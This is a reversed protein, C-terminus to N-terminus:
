APFRSIPRSRVPRSSPSGTGVMAWEIDVPEGRKAEVAAALDVIGEIQRQSLCAVGAPCGSHRAIGGGEVASLRYEKSGIRRGVVSRAVRDYVFEDPDVDGSVVTAALGFNANVVAEDYCNNLPNLSFAIGAVEADVLEQVIVALRPTTPALGRRMRYRYIREDFLSTFCARVASEIETPPVALVTGYAGAFSAQGLDEEPSSSRVAYLRGLATGGLNALAERLTQRRGADLSLDACRRELEECGARLRGDDAALVARWGPTGTLIETWADFFGTELVFGPPVPFGQATLQMLAHAKGGVRGVPPPDPAGFFTIM